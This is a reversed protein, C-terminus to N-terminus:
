RTVVQFSMNNGLGSTWGGDSFTVKYENRPLKEIKVVRTVLNKSGAWQGVVRDGKRLQMVTRTMTERPNPM